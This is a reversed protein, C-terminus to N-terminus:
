QVAIVLACIRAFATAQRMRLDWAQLYRGVITRADGEYYGDFPRQVSEIMRSTSVFDFDLTNPLIVLDM